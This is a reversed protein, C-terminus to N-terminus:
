SVGVRAVPGMLAWCPGLSSDPFKSPRPQVAETKSEGGAVSPSYDRKRENRVDDEMVLEKRLM